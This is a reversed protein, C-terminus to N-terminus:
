CCHFTKIGFRPQRAKTAREGRQQGPGSVRIETEKVHDSLSFSQPRASCRGGHGQSRIFVSLLSQSDTM